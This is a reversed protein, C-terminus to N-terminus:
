ADIAAIDLVDNGQCPSAAFGHPLRQSRMSKVSMGTWWRLANQMGMTTRAAVAQLHDDQLVRPERTRSQVHDSNMACGADRSETEGQGTKPWLRTNARSRGRCDRTTPLGASPSPSTVSVWTARLLWSCAGLPAVTAPRSSNNRTLRPPTAVQRLCCLLGTQFSRSRPWYEADENVCAIVDIQEGSSARMIIMCAPRVSSIM